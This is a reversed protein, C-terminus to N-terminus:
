YHNTMLYYPETAYNLCNERLCKAVYVRPFGYEEMKFLANQDIKTNINGIIPEQTVTTELTKIQRTRSNDFSSERLIISGFNESESSEVSSIEQNEDDSTNCVFKNYVGNDIDGNNNKEYQM